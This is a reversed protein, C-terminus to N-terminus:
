EFEAATIKNTKLNGNPQLILEVTYGSVHDGRIEFDFQKDAVSYATEPGFLFETGYWKEGTAYKLKYSGLPVDLSVSQGSWIFVTCIIKSTYWDVIKVFYHNGSDRTTITLPAIAEAAVFRRISGNIPLPQIPESFIPEAERPPENALLDRPAGKQDSTANSLTTPQKREFAPNLAISIIAFLILALVLYWGWNKKFHRGKTTKTRGTSAANLPAGKQIKQRAFKFTNILFWWINLVIYVPWLFAGIVGWPSLFFTKGTLEFFVKGTCPFCLEAAITREKRQFFYSINEHFEAYFTVRYKGCHGCIGLHKKRKPQESSTTSRTNKKIFDAEKSNPFRILLYRALFSARATYNMSRNFLIADYLGASTQDEKYTGIETANTKFGCGCSLSDMYNTRLCEPCIWSNHPQKPPPQSSSNEKKETKQYQQSQQRTYSKNFHEVIRQYADNIEKLKEEARKQLKIDHAFRDPHWVKVLERYAQKVEQETANTNLDLIKYYKEM